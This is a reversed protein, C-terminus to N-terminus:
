MGGGRAPLRHILQVLREFRRREYVLAERIPGSERFVHALVTLAAEEFFRPTVPYENRGLAPAMWAALDRSRVQPTRDLHDRLSPM